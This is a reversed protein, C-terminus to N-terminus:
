AEGDNVGYSLSRTPRQPHVEGVEGVAVGRWVGFVDVPVGLAVQVSRGPRVWDRERWDSPLLDRPRALRRPTYMFSGQNEKEM